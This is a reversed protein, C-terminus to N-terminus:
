FRKGGHRHSRKENAKMKALMAAGLPIGLAGALDFIRIAADALEISFNSFAPCHKDQLAVPQRAAELAESLESHILAIKEGVNVKENIAQQDDENAAVLGDLEPWFGKRRAKQHIVDRLEDFIEAFTNDAYEELDIM